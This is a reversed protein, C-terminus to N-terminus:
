SKNEIFKDPFVFLRRARESQLTEARYYNQLINAKWNLLDANHRAFKQWETAEGKEMREHILFMYAWTITEHYISAKGLSAAFRKLSQTFRALADLPPYRQLYLWALKVHQSHDFLEAPYTCNEFQEIFEEDTM